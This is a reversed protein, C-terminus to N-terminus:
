SGDGPRNIRDRSRMIDRDRWQTSEPRGTESSSDAASPSLSSRGQSNIGQIRERLASASVFVLPYQQHLASVFQGFLRLAEAADIKAGSSQISQADADLARVYAMNEEQLQAALKRAKILNDTSTAQAERLARIKAQEDRDSEKAKQLVQPPLQVDRIELGKIMVGIQLPEVVMQLRDRAMVEISARISTAQRNASSLMVGTAQQAVVERLVSEAQLAILDTPTEARSLYAVPDTVKYVVAYSVGVLGGDATLMQGQSQRSGKQTVLGVDLTRDGSVNVLRVNDVPYPWRWHWGPDEVAVIRGFRSLVGRQQADVLYFGSVLWAALILSVGILWSKLSLAQLGKFQVPENMAPTAQQVPAMAPPEPLKRGLMKAIRCRVKYVMQQWLVELDPPGDPPEPTRPTKGLPPTNKLNPDQAGNNPQVPETGTSEPVQDPEKKEPQHSNGWQPDNISM